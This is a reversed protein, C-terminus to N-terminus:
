FPDFSFFFDPNSARAIPTESLHAKGGNQQRASAYQSFSDARDGAPAAAATLNGRRGAAEGSFGSLFSINSNEPFSFVNV